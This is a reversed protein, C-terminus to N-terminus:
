GGRFVPWGGFHMGREAMGPLDFNIVAGFSRNALAPESAIDLTTRSTPTLAYDRQVPSGDELFFTVHAVNAAPNPNLLLFFTHFYGQSGEAFYWTSAAGSSAKEGHSGYGTGDWSMTREVILPHGSTSAVATAFNAQEMGAISKVTVTTRSTAPLNLQQVVTSGNDKYFTITATTA